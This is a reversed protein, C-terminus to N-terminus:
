ETQSKNVALNCSRMVTAEETVDQVSLEDFNKKGLAAGLSGAPALPHAPHTSRPEQSWIRDYRDNCIFAVYTAYPVHTTNYSSM